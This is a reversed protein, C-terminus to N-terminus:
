LREVLVYKPKHEEILSKISANLFMLTRQGHTKMPSNNEDNLFNNEIVVIGGANLVGIIVKADETFRDVNYSYTSDDWYGSVDQSATKRITLPLCNKQRRKFADGGKFELGKGAKYKLKIDESDTILDTTVNNIIVSSSDEHLDKSFGTPLFILSFLLFFPLLFRNM